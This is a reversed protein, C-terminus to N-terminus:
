TCWSLSKCNFLDAAIFCRLGGMEASLAVPCRPLQAAGHYRRRRRRHDVTSNSVQTVMLFFNFLLIDIPYDSLGMVMTELPTNIKEPPLPYDDFKIKRISCIM